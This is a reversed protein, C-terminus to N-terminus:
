RYVDLTTQPVTSGPGLVNRKYAKLHNAVEDYVALPLVV